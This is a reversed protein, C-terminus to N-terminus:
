IERFKFEKITIRSKIQETIDNYAKDFEAGPIDGPLMESGDKNFPNQKIYNDQWETCAQLILKQVKYERFAKADKEDVFKAIVGNQEDIVYFVM